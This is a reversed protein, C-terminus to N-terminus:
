EQSYNLIGLAKNIYSEAKDRNRDLNSDKIKINTLKQSLKTLDKIIKVIEKNEDKGELLKEYSIM